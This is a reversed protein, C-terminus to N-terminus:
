ANKWVIAGIRQPEACGNCHAVRTRHLGAAHEATLLKARAAWEAEEADSLRMTARTAIADARQRRARAREYSTRLRDLATVQRGAARSRANTGM